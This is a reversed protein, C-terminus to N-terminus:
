SCGREIMFVEPRQTQVEKISGLEIEHAENLFACQMTTREYVIRNSNEFIRSADSISLQTPNMVSASISAYVDGEVGGCVVGRVAGLVFVSGTAELRGGPNVDGILLVNGIFREVQGSRITRYVTTLDRERAMREADDKLIVDSITDVVRMASNNEILAVLEAQQEQTVYRKGVYLKVAVTAHQGGNKYPSKALEERLSEAADSLTCEENIYLSFGDRSGRLQVLGVRKENM